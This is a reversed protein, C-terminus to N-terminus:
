SRAGFYFGVFGALTLEVNGLSLPLELSPNIVLQILVLIGLLFLAVLAFWAQIDQFWYPLSGGWLFRVISTLVFGIMFATFLVALMLIIPGTEAMEFKPKHVYLWYALGLYGALLIIRVTFRPLGLPSRTSAPGHISHGHAVFFHALMLVMIINLYIFAQSAEKTIFIGQGEKGPVLAMIWLFALV